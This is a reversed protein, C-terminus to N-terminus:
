GNFCQRTTSPEIKSTPINHLKILRQAVECADLGSENATAFVDMKPNFVPRHKDVLLFALADSAHDTQDNSITFHTHGHMLMLEASRLLTYDQVAKESTM